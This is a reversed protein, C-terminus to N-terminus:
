KAQLKGDKNFVKTSLPHALAEHNRKLGLTDPITEVGPFNYISDKVSVDMTDIQHM